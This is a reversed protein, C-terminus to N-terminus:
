DTAGCKHKGIHWVWQYQLAFNNKVNITCRVIDKQAGTPVKAPGLEM